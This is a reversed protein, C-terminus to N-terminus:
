ATLDNSIDCKDNIETMNETCQGRNRELIEPLLEYREEYLKICANTHM